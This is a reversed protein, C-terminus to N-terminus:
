IIGHIGVVMRTDLGVKESTKNFKTRVADALDIGYDSAVLDTCIIIDALEDALKDISSRSGALGLRERELKKIENLAEGVEGGLETARFLTGADIGPGWEQQRAKNASRLNVYGAM